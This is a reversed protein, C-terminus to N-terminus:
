PHAMRMVVSSYIVVAFTVFRAFNYVPFGKHTGKREQRAQRCFNEDKHTEDSM